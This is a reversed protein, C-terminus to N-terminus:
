LDKRLRKLALKLFDDGYIRIATQLTAEADRVKQELKKNREAIVNGKRTLYNYREISTDFGLKKMRTSIAQTSLNYIASIKALSNGKKYLEIMELTENHINKYPPM